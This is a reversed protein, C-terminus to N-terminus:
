TSVKALLARARELGALDFELDSDDIKDPYKEASAMAVGLSDVGMDRDTLVTDSLFNAENTSLIGEAKLAIDSRTVPGVKEELKELVTKLIACEKGKIERKKELRSKNIETPNEASM